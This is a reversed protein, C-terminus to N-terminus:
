FPAAHVAEVALFRDSVSENDTRHCSNPSFFFQHRCPQRLRGGFLRRWFTEDSRYVVTYMCTHQDFDSQFGNYICTLAIYTVGYDYLHKFMHNLHLCMKHTDMIVQQCRKDCCGMNRVQLTIENLFVTM